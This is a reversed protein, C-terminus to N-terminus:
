GINGGHSHGVINLKEGDIFNHDNIISIINNAAQQRAIRNDGGSWQLIQPTENFTKGVASIFNAATGTSSWDKKSYRTGPIIVTLLGSPDSGTIPNNRAYSYSNMSQPDQLIKEPTWFVPDQSIFQGKKGDYYRANLYSLNTDTDYMQGIFQRQPNDTGSNIRPAGFPFYDLTQAINGKADSVVNTSGLNDTQVYETVASVGTGTVIAIEIGNAFIHKVVKGNSDINYYKSPYTTIVTTASVSPPKSAWVPAFPTLIFLFALLFATLKSSLKNINPQTKFM